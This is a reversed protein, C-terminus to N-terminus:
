LQSPYLRSNLIYADGYEFNSYTSDKELYKIRKELVEQDTYYEYMDFKTTIRLMDPIVTYKLYMIGLEKGTANMM